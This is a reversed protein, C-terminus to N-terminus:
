HVDDDDVGDGRQHGAGLEVAVHAVRQGAQLRAEHRLRQALEGRCDGAGAADHNEDVLDPFLYPYHEPAEFVVRAHHEGVAGPHGDALDDILSQRNFHERVIRTGTRDGGAFDDVPEIVAASVLEDLELDFSAARAVPMERRSLIMQDERRLTRAASSREPDAIVHQQGDFVISERVILQLEHEAAAQTVPRDPLDARVRRGEADAMTYILLIVKAP